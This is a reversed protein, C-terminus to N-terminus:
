ARLRDVAPPPQAEREDLSWAYLWLASRLEPSLPAPRIVAQEVDDLSAGDDMAQAVQQRLTRIGTGM